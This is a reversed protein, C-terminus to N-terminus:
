EAPGAPGDPGATATKRRRAFRVGAVALLAPIVLWVAVAALAAAAALVYQAAELSAEWADEFAERPSKPGDDKPETKGPAPPSLAIDITALDTLDDLVNLQGQIREIQLRIGDVKDTVTIIEQITKAQELLKLYQAESRELNRLRSQLDTYQETVERSASEEKLVKGGPLTRLTALVDQYAGVPVRMTLTAYTQEEGSSGKKSYVSSKEVFGGANRAARSADAFAVHVDGAAIDLKASFIIKRELQGSVVGTDGDSTGGPSSGQSPAVGAKSETTTLPASSDDRNVTSTNGGGPTAAAVDRGGGDDEGESYSDGGGCAAVAVAAAVAVLALIALVTRSKRM